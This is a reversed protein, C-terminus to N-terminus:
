KSPNKKGFGILHGVREGFSPIKTQVNEKKEWDSSSRQAVLEARTTVAHAWWKEASEQDGADLIGRIHNLEEIETDIWRILNERNHVFDTVPNHDQGPMQLPLSAAFYDRNTLKRTERWGSASTTSNLMVAALLAPLQQSGSLLGDVEVPDSFLMKTNLMESLSGAMEVAEHSTFKSTSVIMLGNQFLDARPELRETAEGILCKPNFTLCINLAHHTEPAVELIKQNISQKVGGLDFFCTNTQIEPAISELTSLADALPECLLILDSKAIAAPLNYEIRDFANAKSAAKANQPNRDHGVRYVKNKFEGLALGISSGVLDLGIVTVQFAM